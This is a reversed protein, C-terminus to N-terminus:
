EEVALSQKLDKPVIIKISKNLIKFEPFDKQSIEGDSNISISEKTLLKINKGRLYSIWPLEKHTGKFVKPFHYLLKIKAMKKVICIDFLGDDLEATPLIKMGGGFYQGNGIACIMAEQSYEVGDILIQFKLSKFTILAKVVGLVYALKGKIIRKFKITERLVEVDLGFGAVNIFRKDNILGLDITKEVGNLVVELAEIEDTPIGVCKIFDNGTGAPIIGLSMKKLNLGNLIENLTGDGGVSVVKSFEEENVESALNIAHGPYETYMIKYKVNRKNLQREIEKAFVRTRGKGAIPNVIFYIGM